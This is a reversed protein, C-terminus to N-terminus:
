AVKATEEAAERNLTEAETLTKARESRRVRRDSMLYMGGIAVGILAPVGVFIGLVVLIALGTEM